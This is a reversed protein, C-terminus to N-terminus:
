KVRGGCSAYLLFSYHQSMDNTNIRDLAPAKSKWITKDLPSTILLILDGDLPLFVLYFSFLFFLPGLCTIFSNFLFLIESKAVQEQSM